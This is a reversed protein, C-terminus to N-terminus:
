RGNAANYEKVFVDMFSVLGVVLREPDPPNFHVRGVHQWTAATVEAGPARSVRVAERLQMDTTGVYECGAKGGHGCGTPIMTVRYFLVPAGPAGKAEEGTLVRVGAARLREAAGREILAASVGPLGKDPVTEVRLRVAEVGRLAERGHMEEDGGGEQARVAVCALLLLLVAAPLRKAPM